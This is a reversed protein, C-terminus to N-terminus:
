VQRGLLSALSIQMNRLRRATLDVLTGDQEAALRRQREKDHRARQKEFSVIRKWTKEESPLGGPEGPQM